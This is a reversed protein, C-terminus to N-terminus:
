GRGDRDKRATLSPALQKAERLRLKRVPLLPTSRPSAPSQVLSHGPFGLVTGADHTSGLQGSGNASNELAEAGKCETGEQKM